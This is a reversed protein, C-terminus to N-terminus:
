CMNARIVQHEEAEDNQGVDIHDDGHGEGLPPLYKKELKILFQKDETKNGKALFGYYKHLISLNEKILMMRQQVKAKLNAQKLTLIRLARRWIRESPASTAPVALYLYALRSLYPYKLQNKKWWELPDGFSGDTTYLPISVSNQQQERWHNTTTQTSQGEGSGDGAAEDSVRYHIPNFQIWLGYFKLVL